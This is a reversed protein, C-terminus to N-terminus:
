GLHSVVREATKQSTGFALKAGKGSMGRMSWLRESCRDVVPLGGKVYNDSGMKGTLFASTGSCGFLREYSDLIIKRCRDDFKPIDARDDFSESFSTGLYFSTQGIPALYSSTEDDIVPCSIKGRFVGVPITRNTSLGSAQHKATRISHDIGVCTVVLKSALETGCSSLKTVICNEREDFYEARTNELVVANTCERLYGGISQCLMRCNLYGGYPEFLALGTKRESGISGLQEIDRQEVLYMPYSSAVGSACEKIAELDHQDSLLWYFGTQQYFSKGLQGGRILEALLQISHGAASAVAKDPDYLRLIGGTVGTAGGGGLISQEILCVTYQKQSLHFALTSGAIGGGVIVVDFPALNKGWLSSKM